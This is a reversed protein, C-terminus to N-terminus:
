KNHAHLFGAIEDPVRDGQGLMLHGGEPVTVLRAGLIRTSMAKADEYNAAPDDMANVVLTPVTIEELRYAESREHPDTNTVYMDFLLGQARPEIPLLMKVTAGVEAAEDPSLEYSGPVFMRQTVRRLPHTLLWFAFDSHMLRQLVPRPPLSLAKDAMATSVLILASVREPHHLALHAASPGGASYAIVAAKEIGLHDLLSVFAEAQQRPTAEPPLPTGLYGFRSPAIIQFGAALPEAGLQLAQDVGGAAGHVVLVPPGEGRLAVEITGHTTEIMQRKVQALREYAATLDRRYSFYTFLGTAVAAIGLVAGTLIPLNRETNATTREETMCEM